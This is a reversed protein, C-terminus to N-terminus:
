IVLDYIKKLSSAADFWSWSKKENKSNTPGKPMEKMGELWEELCYPDNVGVGLGSGLELVEEIASGKSFLVPVQYRIAKAVPLSFGEYLSPHLYLNVRLFLEEIKEESINEYLILKGNSLFEKGNEFFWKKGKFDTVLHFIYSSSSPLNKLLKLIIELNKYKEFRSITLIHTTTSLEKIFREQKEILGNHVVHIKEELKPFRELIKIKTWQSVTTIADARKSIIPFLFKFTLALKKSVKDPCLLPIIDHVTLVFKWGYKKKIGEAFIWPLNLNGM